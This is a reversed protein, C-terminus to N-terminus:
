NLTFPSKNLLCEHVLHIQTAQRGFCRGRSGKTWMNGREDHRWMRLDGTSKPPVFSARGPGFKSATSQARDAGPRRVPASTYADAAADQYPVPSTPGDGYGRNFNTSSSAKNFDQGGEHWQASSSASMNTNHRKPAPPHYEM